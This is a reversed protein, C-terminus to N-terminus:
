SSNKKRYVFIKKIECMLFPSLAYKKGVLFCVISHVTHEVNNHLNTKKHEAEVLCKKSILLSIFFNLFTILIKKKM